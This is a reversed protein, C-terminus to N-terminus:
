NPWHIEQLSAGTWKRALYFIHNESFERARGLDYLAEEKATEGEM